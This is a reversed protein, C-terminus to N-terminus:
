LGQTITKGYEVVEQVQEDSCEPHLSSFPVETYFTADGDGLHMALCMLESEDEEHHWCDVIDIEAGERLTIINGSDNKLVLDNM